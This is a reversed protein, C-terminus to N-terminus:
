KLLILSKTAVFRGARLQYLYVGSAFRVADWEVTYQGLALYEAVLTEVEEGRSNFIKLTVDVARPIKFRISTSPNFPNPYNQMLGYGHAVETETREIDTTGGGPRDLASPIM